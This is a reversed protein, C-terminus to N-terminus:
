TLCKSLSFLIFILCRFIVKKSSVTNLSDNKNDDAEKKKSESEETKLSEKIPENKGLKDLASWDVWDDGIEDMQQLTAKFANDM